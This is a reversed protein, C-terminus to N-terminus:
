ITLVIHQIWYSINHEPTVLYGTGGLTAFIDHVNKSDDILVCDHIPAQYAHVYKLFLEGNRDIKRMGQEFSNCILDFYNDLKLAPQTFKTFSDMNDTLLIVIFYERLQNIQKLINLDVNMTKCDRVFLEWLSEYPIGLKKSVVVNIEKATYNGRMWDNVLTRDNRFLLEQVQELQAAPLSRWYREYCLVGDFDIFLIKRKM